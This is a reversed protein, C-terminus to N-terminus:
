AIRYQKTDYRITNYRIHCTFLFFNDVRIIQMEFKENSMYSVSHPAHQILNYDSILHFSMNLQTCEAWRFFEVGYMSISKMRNPQRAVMELCLTRSSAHFGSIYTTKRSTGYSTIALLNGNSGVAPSAWNSRYRTSIINIIFNNLYLGDYIMNFHTCNCVKIQTRKLCETVCASFSYYKYKSDFQENPFICKRTLRSIEKVGEDNVVNQLRFLIDQQTGHLQQNFQLTALLIHPIDEENLISVQILHLFFSSFVSRVCTM